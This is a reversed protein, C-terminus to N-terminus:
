REQRGGPPDIDRPPALSADSKEALVPLPMAPPGCIRPVDGDHMTKRRNLACLQQAPQAASLGGGGSSHRGQARNGLKIRVSLTPTPHHPPANWSATLAGGRLSSNPHRRGKGMVPALFGSTAAHRDARIRCGRAKRGNPSGGATQGADSNSGKFFQVPRQRCRWRRRSRAHPPASAYVKLPAGSNVPSAAWLYMLIWHVTQYTGISSRWNPSLRVRAKAGDACTHSLTM